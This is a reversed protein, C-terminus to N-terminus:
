IDGEHPVRHQLQQEVQRDCYNLLNRNPSELETAQYQRERADLRALVAELSPRDWGMNEGEDWLSEADHSLESWQRCHDETRRIQISTRLSEGLTAILVVLGILLTPDRMIDLVTPSATIAFVAIPGAVQIALGWRHRRALVARWYCANVRAIYLVRWTRARYHDQAAGM